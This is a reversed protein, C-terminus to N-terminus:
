EVKEEEFDIDELQANQKKITRLEDEDIENSTVNVPQEVENKTETATPEPSSAASSNLVELQGFKGTSLQKQGQYESVYGNTIKVKDGINVQDAQENWLTLTIDGTDDRITANCVKGQKGFKDFIRPEAKSVVTAEIDIKGQGAQVESINM